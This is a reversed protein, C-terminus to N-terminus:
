SWPKNQPKFFVWSVIFTNKHHRQATRPHPESTLSTLNVLLPVWPGLGDKSLVPECQGGNVAAQNM